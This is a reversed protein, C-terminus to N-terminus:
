NYSSRHFIFHLSISPFFRPLNESLIVVVLPAPSPLFSVTLPYGTPDSNSPLFSAALPYVTPDSNSPLFTTVLPYVTPDSHSPLFSAALPYGTRDSNTPHFNANLPYGTPASNSVSIEWVTTRNQNNTFSRFLSRFLFVFFFYLRVSSSFNM